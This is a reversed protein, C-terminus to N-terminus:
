PRETFSAPAHRGRHEPLKTAPSSPPKLSLLGFGGRDIIRSLPAIM